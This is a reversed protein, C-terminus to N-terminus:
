RRYSQPLEKPLLDAHAVQRALEEAALPSSGRRRARAMVEAVRLGAVHFEVVPEPLLNGALALSGVGAGGASVTRLGADELGRRDVGGGYVIVPLHPPPAGGGRARPGAGAGVVETGQGAFTILADCEPLMRRAAPDALEAAVKEGGALSVRGANDPGVVLVRAGMQALLRVAKPYVIGEAALLLTSGAVAVGLETFLWALLLPAFRYFDIADLDVGAVAVGARRCAVADTKRSSWQAAGDMLTVVATEPLNHIVSEDIPRVAPLDTVVDVRELPAQLRSPVFTVRDEVGALRALYLAQEQSQRREGRDSERAVAYVQEAGALAAITATARLYGTATATLVTMDSLDLEHRAIAAAALRLLSRGPFRADCAFSSEPWRM